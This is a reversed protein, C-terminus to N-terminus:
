ASSEVEDHRPEPIHVVNDEFGREAAPSFEHVDALRVPVRTAKEGSLVEAVLGVLFSQVGVGLAVAAVTGAATPVARGRGVTGGVIAVGTAAGAVAFSAAGIGGFLHMPRRGYRTLYVTTVLDVGGRVYRELGYKSSGSTRPRHNVVKETVRFGKWHALMPLYRHLEGYCTDAIEHAAERSYAKLGCNFDHLELGSAKRTGANFFKSATRRSWADHRKQKWGSVVDYGERRVALLLPIEEPDDQLDADMSIVTAGTAARFGTALAAAKGFNRRLSILRARRDSRVIEEIIDASGDTSGDDVFVVEFSLQERECVERISVFLEALTGEENMLPVVVSVAPTFSRGAGGARASEPQDNHRTEV